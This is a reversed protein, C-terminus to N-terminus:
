HLAATIMRRFEDVPRLSVLVCYFDGEPYKTLCLSHGRYRFFVHAGSAFTQGRPLEDERAEFFVCFISDNEGRYLTYVVDRGDQLRDLRRGALKYGSTGFNWIYDPMEHGMFHGLYANSTDGPPIAEVNPEFHVAVTQYSSIAIDFVPVPTERAFRGPLVLFIVAAAAALVLPVWVRARRLVALPSKRKDEDAIATLIKERVDAPASMLAAGERLMAKIAREEFLRARCEACGALHEDAARQEEGSLEGDAHASLYNEIYTSCDM